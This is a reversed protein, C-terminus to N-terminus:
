GCEYFVSKLGEHSHRVSINNEDVCFRSSLQILHSSSLPKWVSELEDQLEQPGCLPHPHEKNM